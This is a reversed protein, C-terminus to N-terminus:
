ETVVGITRLWTEVLQPWATAAFKWTL